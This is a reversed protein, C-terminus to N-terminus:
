GLGAPRIRVFAMGGHHAPHVVGHAIHELQELIQVYVVIRQDNKRGVVAGMVLRAVRTDCLIGLEEAGVGVHIADLAVCPLRANPLRRQDAPGRDDWRSAGAIM